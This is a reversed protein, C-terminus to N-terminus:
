PRDYSLEGVSAVVPHNRHQIHNAVMAAMTAALILIVIALVVILGREPDQSPVHNEM